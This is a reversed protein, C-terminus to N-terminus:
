STAILRSEGRRLAEKLTFMAQKDSAIPSLVWTQVGQCDWRDSPDIDRKGRMCM